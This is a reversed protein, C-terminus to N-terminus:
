LNPRIAIGPTLGNTKGVEARKRRGGVSQVHLGDAGLLQRAVGIRADVRHVGTEHRAGM